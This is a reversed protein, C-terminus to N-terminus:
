CSFVIEPSLKWVFLYTWIFCNEFPFQSSKHMHFTTFPYSSLCKVWYERKKTWKAIKNCYEDKTKFILYYTRLKKIICTECYKKFIRENCSTYHLLIITPIAMSLIYASKMKVKPKCKFLAIIMTENSKM